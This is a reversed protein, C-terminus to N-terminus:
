LAATAIELWRNLNREFPLVVEGYSAEEDSNAPTRKKNDQFYPSLEERLQLRARLLRAKVATLSLNLVEATEAISFGEIDRLVIITRYHEPLSDLAKTLIATLEGRSYLQEPNPRWDQVEAPIIATDNQENDTLSLTKYKAKGRVKMLATNIAIRTLWTSFRSREEFAELKSFAKIFADQVVEEADEHCKTIRIAIRFLKDTHRKVLREFAAMDGQKADRVLRLDTGAEGELQLKSALM